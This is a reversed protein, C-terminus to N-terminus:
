SVEKPQLIALAKQFKREIKKYEQRWFKARESASKYKKDMQKAGPYAETIRAIEKELRTVEECVEDYEEQHAKLQSELRNGLDILQQHLIDCRPCKGHEPKARSAHARLTEIANSYELCQLCTYENM